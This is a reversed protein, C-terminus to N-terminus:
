LQFLAITKGYETKGFISRSTHRSYERKTMSLESMWGFVTVENIYKSNGNQVNFAADM